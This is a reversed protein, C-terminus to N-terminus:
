QYSAVAMCCWQISKDFFYDHAVTSFLNGDLRYSKCTGSCSCPWQRICPCGQWSGWRWVPLMIISYCWPFSHFPTCKFKLLDVAETSHNFWKRWSVLIHPLHNRDIDDGMRQLICTILEALTWTDLLPVYWKLIILICFKM